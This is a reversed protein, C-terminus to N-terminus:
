LGVKLALTQITSFGHASTRQAIVRNPLEPRNRLFFAGTNEFGSSTYAIALPQKVDAGIVLEHGCRNM